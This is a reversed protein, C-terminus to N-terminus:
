KDSEFINHILKMTLGSVSLPNLGIETDTRAIKAIEIVKKTLYVCGM